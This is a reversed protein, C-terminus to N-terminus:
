ECSQPLSLFLSQSSYDLCLIAGWVQQWAGYICLQLKNGVEQAILHPWMVLNLCTPQSPYGLLRKVNETEARVKWCVTLVRHSMLGDFLLGQTLNVQFLFNLGPWLLWAALCGRSTCLQPVTGQLPLCTSHCLPLLYLWLTLMLTPTTSLRSEVIVLLRFTESRESGGQGM